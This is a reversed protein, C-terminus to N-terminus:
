GRTGTITVNKALTKFRVGNTQTVTISVYGTKGTKIDSIVGSKGAHTGRVVECGAGDKVKPDSKPPV